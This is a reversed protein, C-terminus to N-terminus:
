VGEVGGRRDRCMRHAPPRPTGAPPTPAAATSQVIIRIGHKVHPACTAETYRRSPHSCSSHEASRWSRSHARRSPSCRSCASCENSSAARWRDTSLSCTIGM